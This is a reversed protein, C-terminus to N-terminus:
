SGPPLDLRNSLETQPIRLRVCQVLQQRAHPSRPNPRSSHPLPECALRPALKAHGVSAVPESKGKLKLLRDEGVEVVAGVLALTEAGILV